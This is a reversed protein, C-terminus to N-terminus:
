RSHNKMLMRSIEFCITLAQMATGISGQSAVVPNTRAALEGASHTLWVAVNTRSIGLIAVFRSAAYEHAHM